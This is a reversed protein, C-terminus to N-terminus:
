LYRRIEKVDKVFVVKDSLYAHWNDRRENSIPIYYDVLSIAKKGANAAQTLITSNYGIFVNFYSMLFEMPIFSPIHGLKLEDDTEDSFRPHCKCIINNEGIFEIIKKVKKKYEEQDVQKTAIISGTLLVVPNAELSIGIKKIISGTVNKIITENVEFPVEKINNKIYFVESLKPMLTNNGRDLIDVDTKYLILYKLKDKIVHYSIKAQPYKQNVLVRNYEIEIGKRNALYVVWNYFGGFAQHYIRVKNIENKKFLNKVWRKAIYFRYDIFSYSSSLKFLQVNQLSILNFFKLINEQDTLVIYKNSRNSQVLTVVYTVCLNTNCLILEM